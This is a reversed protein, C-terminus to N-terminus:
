CHMNLSIFVNVSRSEIIRLEIFLTLLMFLIDESPFLLFYFFFIWIFPPIIFLKKLIDFEDEVGLYVLFRPLTM